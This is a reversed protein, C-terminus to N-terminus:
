TELGRLSVLMPIIQISTIKGVFLRNNASV